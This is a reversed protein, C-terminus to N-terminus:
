GLGYLEDEPDWYKKLTCGAYYGDCGSFTMRVNANDFAPTIEVDIVVPIYVAYQIEASSYTEEGYPSYWNSAFIVYSETADYTEGALAEITTSYDETMQGGYRYEMNFYEIAAEASYQSQPLIGYVYGGYEYSGVNKAALIFKVDTGDLILTFDPEAVSVDVKAIVPNADEFTALIKITGESDADAEEKPATISLNSGSISAKWGDPKETITYDKVGNMELKLSKTQGYTFYQKGSLIAFAVEKEKAVKIVTGDALTLYVYDEDQDYSTFVIVDEEPEIGTKEWTVGGDISVYFVGDELKSKLTIDKAEVGTAIWSQGGDISIYYKGDEIKQTLKVDQPKAGTEIWTKGGDISIYYKGDETKSTIEFKTEEPIVPVNNGDILLFEPEKGYVGVAWYYVGNEEKVTLFSLGSLDSEPYVTVTQGDSLTIITKGGNTEIKSVTTMGNILTTLTNIQGQMKQELETLRKDLDAISEKLESDDFIFKACSSFLIPCAMAAVIVAKGIIRGLNPIIQKKM